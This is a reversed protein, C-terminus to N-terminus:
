KSSLIAIVDIVGYQSQGGSVLANIQDYVAQHIAGDESKPRIMIADTEM